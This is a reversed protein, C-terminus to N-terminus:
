GTVAPQVRRALPAFVTAARAALTAVRTASVTATNVRRGRVDVSAILVVTVTRRQGPRMTGLQFTVSGNRLASKRSARVFSMGGPLRDRLVVNRATVKGTNRVTITYRVLTLVRASSPATKTIALRPRPTPTTPTQAAQGGRFAVSVSASLVNPVAAATPQPMSIPDTPNISLLRGDGATSAQVVVTGPNPSTLTVSGTGGAGITVQSASLTGTGSAISLTVVAGPKGSAVITATTAGAGPASASLSLSSPTATAALAEQVLAAAAANLAPDSTPTTKHIQADVLLWVAVQAIAAQDAKEATPAGTPVRNLLIWMLARRAPVSPPDEVTLEVPETGASFTRSTDTCYGVEPAGDITFNLTGAMGSSPIADGFTDFFTLSGREIDPTAGGAQGTWTQTAPVAGARAAQLALLGAVAIAFAILITIALPRDQVRHSRM